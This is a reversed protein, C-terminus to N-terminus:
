FINIRPSDISINDAFAFYAAKARPTMNMARAKLAEAWHDGPPPITYIPSRFKAADEAEEENFLLEILPEEISFEERTLGNITTGQAPVEWVDPL